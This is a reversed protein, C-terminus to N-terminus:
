LCVAGPTNSHTIVVDVAKSSLILSCISFEVGLSSITLVMLRLSSISPLSHSFILPAFNHSVLSVFISLAIIVDAIIPDTSAPVILTPVRSAELILTTLRSAEDIDVPVNFAIVILPAVIVPDLIM